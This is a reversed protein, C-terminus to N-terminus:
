DLDQFAAVQTALVRAYTRGFLLRQYLPWSSVIERAVEHPDRYQGDDARLPVSTLEAHGHRTVPRTPRGKM